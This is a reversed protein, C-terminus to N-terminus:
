FALEAGFVDRPYDFLPLDFPGPGGKKWKPPPEPEPSLAFLGLLPILEPSEASQSDIAAYSGSFVVLPAVAARRAESPQAAARGEAAAKLQCRVDGMSAGWSRSASWSRYSARLSRSGDPLRWPVADRCDAAKAVYKAVYGAVRVFDEGDEGPRFSVRQLTVRHGFGHRMVLERLTRERLQLAKGDTRYLPIHGHLGMRGLGDSRRKGDQVEVARMYAVPVRQRIKVWQYGSGRRVRKAPLRPSAEGRRIATIVRNLRDTFTANFEALDVGGEPTCPCVSCDWGDGFCKSHRRCHQRDGPPTVTLFWVNGGGGHYMGQAAVM